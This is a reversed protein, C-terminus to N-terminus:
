LRVFLSGQTFPAGSPTPHPITKYFFIVKVGGGDQWALWRGKCLPPM